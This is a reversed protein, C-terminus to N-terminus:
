ALFGQNNINALRQVQQSVGDDDRACLPECGLLHARIRRQKRGPRKSCRGSHYFWCFWRADLERWIYPPSSPARVRSRQGMSRLLHNMRVQISIFANRTRSSQSAMRGGDMSVSRSSHSERSDWGWKCGFIVREILQSHTADIYIAWTAAKRRCSDRSPESRFKETCLWRNTVTNPRNREYTNFKSWEV